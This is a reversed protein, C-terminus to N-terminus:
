LPAVSEKVGFRGNSPKLVVSGVKSKQGLLIGKGKARKLSKEKAMNDNDGKVMLSFNNGEKYVVSLNSKENFVEVM